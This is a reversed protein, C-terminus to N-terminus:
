GFRPNLEEVYSAEDIFQMVEMQREATFPIVIPSYEVIEFIIKNKMFVDEYEYEFVGKYGGIIWDADEVSKLLFIDVDYAGDDALLEISPVDSESDVLVVIEEGHTLPTMRVIASYDDSMERSISLDYKPRIDIEVDFEEIKHLDLVIETEDIHQKRVPLYGEKELNIFGGSCTSPLGTSLLYTGRDAQTEGLYCGFVVCDYSVKVGRIDLGTMGGDIGVARITYEGELDDCPVEYQIPAQSIVFGQTNKDPANSKIAVPFAFRFIYGDGFFANEDFLNIELMFNIDYTFHATQIPFPIPTGQFRAMNTRLMGGTSPNVIVNLNGPTYKVISKIDTFSLQSYEYSDPLDNPDFFFNFYEYADDPRGSPINGEMYDLVTLDRFPEYSSSDEQFPLYDTGKFRVYQLNYFILNEIDRIVDALQWSQPRVNFSFYTIPIDPHASILDILAFEFNTNEVESYVIRRALEHMKGLKVDHRYTFLSYQEIQDNTKSVVDLEYNVEIFITNTSITTLVDIPSREVIDFNDRFGSFDDLCLNLNESVVSSIELEMDSIRPIRYNGKYYWAPVGFVNRSDFSLFSNSDARIHFPIEIYGGQHGLNLITTRSIEEICIEVYDRFSSPTRRLAQSDVVVQTAFLFYYSLYAVVMLAMGLLIFITIQSKRYKFFM